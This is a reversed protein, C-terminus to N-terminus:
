YRKKNEEYEKIMWKEALRATIFHIEEDTPTTFVLYVLGHSAIGIIAYRTEDETSHAEDIFEIAYQDEFINIVQAFDISHERRVQKAKSEDWTYKM